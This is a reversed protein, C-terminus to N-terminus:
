VHARGIEGSWYGAYHGRYIMVRATYTGVGPITLDTLTIMPTDGAWVVPLPMPVTVDRSGYQIRARFLWLGDKLKSVKEINYKEETLKAGSGFSFHGVLTAGSLDQEFQRERAAQEADPNKRSCGASALLAALWLLSRPSLKIM